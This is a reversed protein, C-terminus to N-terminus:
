QVRIPPDDATYVGKARRLEERVIERIREESPPLPGLPINPMFPIYPLSGSSGLQCYHPAGSTTIIAGGCLHCTGIDNVEYQM